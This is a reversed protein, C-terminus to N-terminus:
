NTNKVYNIVENIKNKLKTLEKLLNEYVDDRHQQCHALEEMLNVAGLVAGESLAKATNAPDRQELAEIRDRNSSEIDLLEQLRDFRIAEKILNLQEQIWLENKTPNNM